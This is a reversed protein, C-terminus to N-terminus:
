AQNADPESKAWRKLLLCGEPAKGRDAKILISFFARLLSALMIKFAAGAAYLKFIIKL